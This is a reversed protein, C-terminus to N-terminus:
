ALGPRDVTTRCRNFREGTDFANNSGVIGVLGPYNTVVMPEARVVLHKWAALVAVVGLVVSPPAAKMIVM